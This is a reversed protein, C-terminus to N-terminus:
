EPCKKYNLTRFHYSPKEVNETFNQRHHHNYQCDESFTKQLNQHIQQRDQTSTKQICM